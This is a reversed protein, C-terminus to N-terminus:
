AIHFTCDSKKGSSMSCGFYCYISADCAQIRDSTQLRTTRFDNLIFFIVIVEHDDVSFNGTERARLDLTASFNALVARTDDDNITSVDIKRVYDSQVGREHHVRTEKMACTLDDHKNRSEM